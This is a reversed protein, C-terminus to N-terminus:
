RDLTDTHPRRGGVSRETPPRRLTAFWDPRHLMSARRPVVLHLSPSRPPGPSALPLSIPRPFRPLALRDPPVLSLSPPFPPSRPPYPPFSPSRRSGTPRPRDPHIAPDTPHVTVATLAPGRGPNETSSAPACRSRSWGPATERASSAPSGARPPEQRDARVPGDVRRDGQQVPRRRRAAAGGGRPRVARPLRGPPEPCGPPPPPSPRRRFRHPRCRAPHPARRQHPHRHRRLGQRRRRSRQTRRRHRRRRLPRARQALGRRPDGVPPDPRLRRSPPRRRRLHRPPQRHPSSGGRRVLGRHRRACRPGVSPPHRHLPRAPRGRGGHRHAQEPPLRGPKRAARSSRVGPRRPPPVVPGTRPPSAPVFRAKLTVTTKPM